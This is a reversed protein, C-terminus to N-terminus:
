NAMNQLMNMKLYRYRKGMSSMERQINTSKLYERKFRAIRERDADNAEVNGDKQRKIPEQVKEDQKIGNTEKISEKLKGVDEKL